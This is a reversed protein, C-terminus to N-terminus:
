ASLQRDNIDCSLCPKGILAMEGINESANGAQSWLLPLLFSPILIEGSVAFCAVPHSSALHSGAFINHVTIMFGRFRRGLLHGDLKRPVPWRSSSTVLGTCSRAWKWQM